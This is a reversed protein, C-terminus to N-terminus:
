TRAQGRRCGARVTRASCRRFVRPSRRPASSITDDAFLAVTPNRGALLDRSFTPPISVVGNIRGDRLDTMAAGEDAYARTDYTRANAAVANFM